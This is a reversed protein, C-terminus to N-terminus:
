RELGVSRERQAPALARLPSFHRATRPSTAFIGADIDRAVGTDVAVTAVVKLGLVVEVDASTLARDAEAVLVVGALGALFPGHGFARILGLYDPGRLVLYSVGSLVADPLRREPNFVGLDNVVLQAGAGPPYQLYVGPAAEIPIAERLGFVAHMDPGGTLMVRRDAGALLATAAAVTTTGVGGKAGVFNITPTSEQTM